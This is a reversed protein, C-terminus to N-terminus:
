RQLYVLRRSRGPFGGSCPCRSADSRQVFCHDNVVWEDYFRGAILGETDLGPFVDGAPRYVNVYEGAIKPVVVDQSWVCKENFAACLLALLACIVMKRIM